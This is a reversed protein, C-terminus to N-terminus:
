GVTRRWGLLIYLGSMTQLMKCDSNSRRDFSGVGAKVEGTGSTETTEVQEEALRDHEQQTTDISQPQQSEHQMLGSDLVM